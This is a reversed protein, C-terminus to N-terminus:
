GISSIRINQNNTSVWVTRYSHAGITYSQPYFTGVRITVARDTDNSAIFCDLLKKDAQALLTFLLGFILVLTRM